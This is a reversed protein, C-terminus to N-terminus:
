LRTEGEVFEELFLNKGNFVVYSFDNIWDGLIIVRATQSLM